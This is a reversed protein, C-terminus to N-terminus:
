PDITITCTVIQPALGTVTRSTDWGSAATNSGTGGTNDCSITASTEGSGGDRFNVQIDSLPPNTFSVVASGTPKNDTCNTGAVVTASQSSPSGAGYGSPPTTESVTYSGPTLQDVCMKGVTSDDDGTGNDTVSLGTGYSFVAGANSVLPNGTKTSRKEIILAGQQLKNTYTCDLTEGGAISFTVTRTGVNTSRNAAPVTSASCDISQLAYNSGSPDDETVTKGSGQVVNLITKSGGDKLSFPSTTTTPNTTIGSSTFGFNTTTDGDPDTEKRIIVTGCNSLRFDGPGVLDKM